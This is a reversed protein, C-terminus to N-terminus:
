SLVFILSILYIQYTLNFPVCQLIFLFTLGRQITNYTNESIIYFEQSDYINQCLINGTM